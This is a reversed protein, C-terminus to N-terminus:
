TTPPAGPRATRRVSTRRTTRKRRAPEAGTQLFAEWHFREPAASGESVREILWQAAHELVWRFNEEGVSAPDADPAPNLFDIAYPVGDRM